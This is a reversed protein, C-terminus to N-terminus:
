EIWGQERYFRPPAPICRRRCARADDDARSRSRRPGSRPGAADRLRRLDAAVITHVTDEPVSPAPSSPPASGSPRRGCPPHRPLARGPDDGRRLLPAVRRPERDRPRRRRRAGRRLLHDGGPHHPGSPRRHLPLRRDRRRLAGPRAPRGARGARGRLQGGDLRPRGDADDAIARTGSGPAGLWVRKGALDEVQAIGADARAVLTLPEPYLAMVARLDAFAGAEAFAGTGALAEAQVDSQVIALDLAGDRLGAINAVSGASPQAACRLGTERRHQNVLRCLAVGVPFYAGTIAGTGMPVITTDQAAAPSALAAVLALIRIARWRGM